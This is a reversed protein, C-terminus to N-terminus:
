EILCNAPVTAYTAKAVGTSVDYDCAFICTGLTGTTELMTTGPVGGYTIKYAASAPIGDPYKAAATGDGVGVAQATICSSATTAKSVACAQMAMCIKDVNGRLVAQKARLQQQVPNMVAILVGSLIGIIVIVVLLEILTFGSNSSIISKKTTM